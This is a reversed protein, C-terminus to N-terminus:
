EMDMWVQGSVLGAEQVIPVPATEETTLRGIRPKSWGSGDRARYRKEAM